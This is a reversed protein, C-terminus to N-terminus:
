ADEELDTESGSMRWIIAKDLRVDLLMLSKNQEMLDKECEELIM